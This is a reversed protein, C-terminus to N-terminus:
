NKIKRYSGEIILMGPLIEGGSVKKFQTATLESGVEQENFAMYRNDWIKGKEPRLTAVYKYSTRQTEPDLLRQVVQFKSKETIGEKLGIKASYGVIRGKENTVVDYIPTKVKFDEYKLQLAAINKDMSRTCVIKVLDKRDYKGKLVSKADFEYEHEVYKFKFLDKDLLFAEIKEPNSVSTYYDNYFVAAISDNWQLQYLYSHTKVTFGTFSDAINGGVKALQRGSSGGLFADILGGVISLGIKAAAAKEEATVYTIDNVLIFTNNLLEEGADSLLALGRASQQALAVDIENANYQGREQILSMDFVYDDPAIEHLNFWKAVVSKACHSNNLIGEIALGNKQVDRSSLNKGYEAKILGTKKRQVGTISDNSIVRIGFNHDDYKDPTPISDFAEYIDQGFEDESHFIMM